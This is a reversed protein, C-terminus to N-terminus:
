KKQQSALFSIKKLFEVQEELHAVHKQLESISQETKQRSLDKEAFARNKEVTSLGRPPRLGQPSAAQKKIDYRIRDLSARTFDKPAYGDAKLIKPTTMGPVDIQSM